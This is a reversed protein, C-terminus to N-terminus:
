LGIRTTESIYESLSLIPLANRVASTSPLLYSRCSVYRLVSQQDTGKEEVTCVLMLLLFM